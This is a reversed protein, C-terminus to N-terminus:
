RANKASGTSFKEVVVPCGVFATYPNVDISMLTSRSSFGVCTATAQSRGVGVKRWLWYASYL